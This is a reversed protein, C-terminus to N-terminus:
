TGAFSLNPWDWGTLHLPHEGAEVAKLRCEADLLHQGWHMYFSCQWINIV